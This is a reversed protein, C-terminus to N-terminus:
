ERGGPPYREFFADIARVLARATDRHFDPRTLLREEERNTLFGVEVLVSPMLANTIVAFPGQKVGRDPGPHFTSIEQQVIEALLASWHQHDFTRLDRLISALLPDGSGADHGPASAGVPLPPNYAAAGRREHVRGAEPIFYSEFGRV